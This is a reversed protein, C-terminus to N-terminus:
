GNSDKSAPITRLPDSSFFREWTNSFNGTPDSLKLSEIWQGYAELLVKNSKAKINGSRGSAELSDLVSAIKKRGEYFKFLAQAYPVDKHADFYGADVMKQLAENSKIYRSGERDNYDVFWDPYKAGIREAMQTKIEQLGKDAQVTTGRSAAVADLKDAMDDFYMWGLERSAKTTPLETQQGGRLYKGLAGQIMQNMQWSYVAGDFGNKSMAKAFPRTAMTIFSADDGISALQGMLKLDRNFENYEGVTASMGSGGASLSEKYSFFSPGYLDLFEKNADNYTFNPGIKRDIRRAEDIYFQYRTQFQTPFPMTLSMAGRFGYFTKAKDVADFFDPERGQRGGLDWETMATRHIEKASNSFEASSMGRLGTIFKDLAAPAIYSTAVDLLDKEQTPRGFPVVARYFPRTLKRSSAFDDVSQPILDGFFPIEKLHGTELATAIEPRQAALWSTPFVVLPQLGPFWFDEGQLLFDIGGKAIKIDTSGGTVAALKDRLAPNTVNIIINGTSGGFLKDGLKGLINDQGQVKNGEDDYVWGASEPANFAMAYRAVYEPKRSPIQLMWFRMASAWAPFFPMVFKFIHAPTSLRQITYLTENTQRLAWKKAVQNMANIQAEGFETVGQSAYLDAQRQMEERWRARFFPHRILANEPMTGLVTMIRGTLKRVQSQGNDILTHGVVDELDGRWGLESQLYEPRVENDVLHARLDADPVLREFNERRQTIIDVMDARADETLKEPDIHGRFAKFEEIDRLYARGQKSGFLTNIIAEDSDGRIIAMGVLDNRYYKNLQEALADFYHAEGPKFPVVTQSKRLSLMAYDTFGYLNALVTDGSSVLSANYSGQNNVNLPGETEFGKFNGEFKEMGSGLPAKVPQGSTRKGLRNRFKDLAAATNALDGKYKEEAGRTLRDYEHWDQMLKGFRDDNALILNARQRVNSAGTAAGYASGAERSAVLESVNTFRNSDAAGIQAHTYNNVELMRAIKAKTEASSEGGRLAALVDTDGDALRLVESDDLQGTKLIAPNRVIADQTLQDLKNDVFDKGVLRGPIVADVQDTSVSMMDPSTVMQYGSPSYGDDLLVRGIGRDKMYAMLIAKNKESMFAGNLSNGNWPTMRSLQGELKQNEIVKDRLKEWRVKMAMIDMARQTVSEIPTLKPADYWIYVDHSKGGTVKGGIHRLGMYGESRAAEVFLMQSAYTGEYKYGSDKGRLDDFYKAMGRRMAQVTTTRGMQFDEDIGFAFDNKMRLYESQFKSSGLDVPGSKHYSELMHAFIRKMQEQAAWGEETSMTLQADLDLFRSKSFSPLTSLYFVPNKKDGSMGMSILYGGGSITPDSTTYYGIGGLNVVNSPTNIPDASLQDGAVRTGGHTVSDATFHDYEPLTKYYEPNKLDSEFQKLAIGQARMESNLLKEESAIKSTLNKLKKNSLLLGNETAYDLLDKPAGALMVRLRLADAVSSDSEALNIINRLMELDQESTRSPEIGFQALLQHAELFDAQDSVAPIEKNAVRLDAVGGYVNARVYQIKDWSEKPLFAIAGSAIDDSMVDAPSHLVQYLNHAPDVIRLVTDGNRMGERMARATARHQLEVYLDSQWQEVFGDESLNAIENFQSREEENLFRTVNERSFTGEDYMSSGAYQPVMPDDSLNQRAQTMRSENAQVQRLRAEEPSSFGTVTNARRQGAGFIPRVLDATVIIEQAQRMIADMEGYSETTVQDWTNTVRARFEDRAELIVQKRAKNEAGDAMATLMGAIRDQEDRLQQVKRFNETTL